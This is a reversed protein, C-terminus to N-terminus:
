PTTPPVSEAATRRLAPKDPPEQLSGIPLYAARFEMVGTAPHSM